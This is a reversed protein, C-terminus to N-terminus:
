FFVLCVKKLFKNWRCSKSSLGGGGRIFYCQCARPSPRTCPSHSYSDYRNAILRQIGHQSRTWTDLCAFAAQFVHGRSSAFCACCLHTSYLVGAYNLHHGVEHEDKCFERPTMMCFLCQAHVVPGSTGRFGVSKSWDRRVHHRPM